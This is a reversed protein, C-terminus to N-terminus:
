NAVTQLFGPNIKVAVQGDRYGIGYAQKQETEEPPNPKKGLVGDDFGKQYTKNFEDFTM